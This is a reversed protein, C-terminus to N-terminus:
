HLREDRFNEPHAARAAHYNAKQQHYKAFHADKDAQQRAKLERVEDPTMTHLKWDDNPDYQRWYQRCSTSCWKRPRGTPARPPMERGCACLDTM